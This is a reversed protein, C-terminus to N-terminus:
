IPVPVTRPVIVHLRLLISKILRCIPPASNAIGDTLEGAKRPEQTKVSCDYLWREVELDVLNTLM